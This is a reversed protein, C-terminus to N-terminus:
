LTSEKQIKAPNTTCDVISNIFDKCLMVLYNGYAGVYAQVGISVGYM